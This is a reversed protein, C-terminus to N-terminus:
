SNFTYEERGVVGRWSSSASPPHERFNDMWNMVLKIFNVYEPETHIKLDM